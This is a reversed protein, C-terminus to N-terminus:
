ASPPAPSPRNELRAVVDPVEAWSIVVADPVVDTGGRPYTSIRDKYQALRPPRDFPDLPLLELIPARMVAYFGHQKACIVDDHYHDGVQIFLTDQGNQTYCHFFQPQTKLYGTLDPALFDDFLGRLNVADLLPYQYKTLGKTAVVLKRHPQKLQKLVAPVDDLIDVEQPSAEANWLDIVRRSLRVGHRQAVTELIDDWDMTLPHNPIERQRRQNEAAVQAGIEDAGVQSVAAIEDILVRIARPGFRNEVLTSDIDVFIVTRM